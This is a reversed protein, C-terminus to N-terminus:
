KLWCPVVYYPCKPLHCLKCDGCLDHGRPCYGADRGYNVKAIWQNNIMQLTKVNFLEGNLEIFIEEQDILLDQPSVICTLEESLTEANQYRMRLCPNM